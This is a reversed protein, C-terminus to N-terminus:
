SSPSTESKATDSKTVTAFGELHLLTNHRKQCITCNSFKCRRDRHSRLCNYCIKASKVLEIRKPVELRKFADCLYLPHRKTKCAICNSSATVVFARNSMPKKKAPPEGTSRESDSVKPRERKSVCVATKYIFEYMLDPKPFEDRDLTAEWKELTSKPLKTELVYVIIEPGVSVGLAGLSAVHQQVEDALKTLGSTTEKNVAPLNFMLALHRSILICKVEYSKELM